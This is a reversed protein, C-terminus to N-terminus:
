SLPLSWNNPRIKLTGLAKLPKGTAIRGVVSSPTQFTKKAASMLDGLKVEPVIGLM